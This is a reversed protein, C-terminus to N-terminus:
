SSKFNMLILTGLINIIIENNKIYKMKKIKKKKNMNMMLLIPSIMKIYIFTSMISSLIMSVTLFISFSMTSQLIMWKPFFGIMPPMSSLSLMNIILNLKSKLTELNMQNIFNLNMKKFNSMVMYNIMTYVIFFTTFQSKSNTLSTIMWPSNSISSYAMIKKLSSQNLALMPSVMMTLCMPPLMLNIKIMQAMVITPIIKQWTTLILCAEWKMLKMIMPVWMHFPLLGMKMLMSGLFLISMSLPYEFILNLLMAMLMISSATSQIIFYKMPQDKMIKNKTLIPMFTMFNIEMMIWMMLMNTSAIASITSIIMTLIMMIKTLNMKM